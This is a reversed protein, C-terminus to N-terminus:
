DQTAFVIIRQNFENTGPIVDGTCSLLNLGPKNSDISTMAATMDVNSADYVQNKVVQYTFVQGDGRQVEITDGPLLTKLGYFVGHATWSSIHGDILMAGPQGPQASQNYWATDYVNDPTGLVTQADVGVSLIRADVALKPIILYRPLNPAVVYNSITAAAPKITSPVIHSNSHNAAYVLKAAHQNVLRNTHWDHFSIGLGTVLLGVAIVALISPLTAAKYNKKARPQKNPKIKHFSM